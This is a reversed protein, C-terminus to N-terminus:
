LIAFCINWGLNERYDRIWSDDKSEIILAEVKQLVQSATVAMELADPGDDHAHM